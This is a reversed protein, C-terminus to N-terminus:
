EGDKNWKKAAEQVYKELAPPIHKSTQADSCCWVCFLGIKEKLEKDTIKPEVTVNNSETDTTKDNKKEKFDKVADRLEKQTTTENIDYQICFDKCEDYSDAAESIISLNTDGFNAFYEPKKEEDKVAIEPALLKAGVNIIRGAKSKSIGLIEECYHSFNPKGKDDTFDKEFLKEDRIRKLELAATCFADKSKNMNQLLKNTAKTLAASKFKIEGNKFESIITMEM